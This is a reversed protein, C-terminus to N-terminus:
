EKNVGLRTVRAHLQRRKKRERETESVPSPQHVRRGVKTAAAAEGTGKTACTAHPTRSKEAVDDLHNRDVALMSVYFSYLFFFFFVIVRVLKIASSSSM